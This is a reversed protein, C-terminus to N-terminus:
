IWTRAISAFTYAYTQSRQLRMCRGISEGIDFAYIKKEEKPQKQKFENKIQCHLPSSNPDFVPKRIRGKKRENLQQATSQNGSLAAEYRYGFIFEFSPKKRKEYM